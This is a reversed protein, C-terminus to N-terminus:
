RLRWVPGRAGVRHEVRASLATRVLEAATPLMADAMDIAIDSSCTGDHIRPLAAVIASAVQCRLNPDTM